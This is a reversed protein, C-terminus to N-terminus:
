LYISIKFIKNTELKVAIVIRRKYVSFSNRALIVCLSYITVYKCICKSRRENKRKKKTKKELYFTELTEIVAFDYQNM